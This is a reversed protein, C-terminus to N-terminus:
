TQPAARESSIFYSRTALARAAVEESVGPPPWRGLGRAVADFANIDARWGHASLFSAPDNTGFQWRIGRAATFDFFAAAPSELFDRSM